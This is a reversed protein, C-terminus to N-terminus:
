RIDVSSNKGTTLPSIYSSQSSRSPWSTATWDRPEPVSASILSISFCCPM